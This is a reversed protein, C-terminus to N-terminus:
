GKKYKYTPDSTELVLQLADGFVRADNKPFYGSAVMYEAVEQGFAPLPRQRLKPNKAAKAQWRVHKKYERALGILQDVFTGTSM